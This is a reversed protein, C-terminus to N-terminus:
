ILYGLLAEGKGKEEGTTPLLAFVYEARLFAKWVLNHLRKVDNDPGKRIFFRFPGSFLGKRSQNSQRYRCNGRAGGNNQFNPLRSHGMNTM